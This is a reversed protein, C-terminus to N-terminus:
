KQSALHNQLGFPTMHSNNLVVPYMSKARRCVLLATTLPPWLEETADYSLGPQPAKEQTSINKRSSTLNGSEGRSNERNEYGEYSKPIFM